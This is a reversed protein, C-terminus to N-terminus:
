GMGRENLWDRYDELLERHDEVFEEELAFRVEQEAQEVDYEQRCTFDAWAIELEFERLQELADPDPERFMSSDPTEGPRVTPRAGPPADWQHLESQREHVREQGDWSDEMGSYGAEAMCASWDRKADAVRTDAQVREQLTEMAQWLDAFREQEAEADGFGYVEEQAENHCGGLEGPGVEISGDEDPEVAEWDGWLAKQYEQQAAPSLEQQYEWNPDDEPEHMEPAPAQFDVTTIGYGYEQAFAEPDDERLQWMERQPDDPTTIDDRDGWFPEPFYEFGAEDMCEVVFEQLQYHQQRQEETFEREGGLGRDDWGFFEALPGQPGTGSGSGADGNGCGALALASVFLGAVSRRRWGRASM